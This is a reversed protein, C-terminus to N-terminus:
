GAKTVWAAEWAAEGLNNMAKLDRVNLVQWLAGRAIRMAAQVQKRTPGNRDSGESELNQIALLRKPGYHGFPLKEMKWRTLKAVTGYEVPGNERLIDSLTHESWKGLTEVFGRAGRRKVDAWVTKMATGFYKIGEPAAKRDNRQITLSEGTLRGETDYRRLPVVQLWGNWVCLRVFGAVIAIGCDYPNWLSPGDVEWPKVGFCVNGDEDFVKGDEPLWDPAEFGWGERLRILEAHETPLLGQGLKPEDYRSAHWAAKGIFDLVGDKLPPLLRRPGYVGAPLATERLHWGEGRKGAAFADLVRELDRATVEPNEVAEGLRNLLVRKSKTDLARSLVASRSLPLPKPRSVTSLGDAAAKAARKKYDPM